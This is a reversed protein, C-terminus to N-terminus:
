HREAIILRIASVIGLVILGLAICGTIKEELPHGPATKMICSICDIIQPRMKVFIWFAGILFVGALINGIKVEM